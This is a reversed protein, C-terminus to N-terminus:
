GEAVKIRGKMGATPTGHLSCYYPVEGDVDLALTAEDKPQLESVPIEDFDGADVPIVNHPNRGTNKFVIKTGPSVIINEPVFQNDHAEITITDQGTMDVWDDDAIAPLGDAGGEAGGGGDSSSCGVLAFVSVAFVALVMPIRRRKMDGVYVRPHERTCLRERPRTTDECTDGGAPRDM